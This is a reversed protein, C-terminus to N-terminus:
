LDRLDCTNFPNFRQTTCHSARTQPSLIDRNVNIYDLSVRDAFPTKNQFKVPNEMGTDSKRNLEIQEKCSSLAETLVRQLNKMYVVVVDFVPM